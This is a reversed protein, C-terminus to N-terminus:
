RTATAPEPPSAAPEVDARLLELVDLVSEIVLEPAELQVYHGSGTAVIRKGRSSQGALETQLIGWTAKIEDVPFDETLPMGKVIDGSSVVVLPLDGLNAGLSLSQACSADFGSMEGGMAGLTKPSSFFRLYDAKLNEPVSAQIPPLIRDGLVLVGLRTVGFYSATEMVRMLRATGDASVRVADPLRDNQEEHSSDVLVLGAVQEPYQKAYLRVSIGGFSHGVLVIPGDIGLGELLARLEKVIQESTRPSPGRESWGYGARDYTVVRTSQGVAPAVAFWDLSTGGLGADFVVTIEGEGTVQAHLRHGGVDILQGPAPHNRADMVNGVVQYVFGGVVLVVVLVVIATVLRKVLRFIRVVFPSKLEPFESKAM